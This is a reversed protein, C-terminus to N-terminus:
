PASIVQFCNSEASNNDEVLENVMDTSDIKAIFKYSGDEINVPINLRVIIKRSRGIALRNITKSITTVTVDQTDDSAGCPRICIDVNFSVKGKLLKNGNNAVVVNLKCKDNPAVSGIISNIAGELDIMQPGDSIVLAVSSGCAVSAGAGPNQEMVLGAPVTDSYNFTVTGKIFGAASLVSEAESATLGIVDPVTTSCCPGESVVLDVTSGCSAFGASPSQSIVVGVAVTDSCQYSVNGVSLNEVSDIASIAAAEEMGVLNPVTPQGTSIELDVVSGCPATGVISQSIVSGNAITGSCVYTIAGVSLNEVAEIAAIATAESIGLVDPINVQCPAQQPVFVAFETLHSVEYMITMTAWNIQVNTIGDTKWQQDGVDFYRIEFSEEFENQDMGEPLQFSMMVTFTHNVDISIGEDDFKFDYVASATTDDTGLVADGPDGYREITLTVAQADDGAGAIAFPPVYINTNDQTGMISAGGGTANTINTSSTKILGTGLEFTFINTAPNGPVLPDTEEIQILVLETSTPDLTYDIQFHNLLSNSTMTGLVGDGMIKTIVPQANLDMNSYFDISLVSASGVTSVSSYLSFEPPEPTDVIIEIDSVYQEALLTIRSGDSPYVVVGYIDTDVAMIYEGPTLDEIAFAGGVTDSTKFTEDSENYALVTVGNIPNDSSDKVTGSISGVNSNLVFDQTTTIGDTIGVSVEQAFFGSAVVNVTYTGTNIGPITYIGSINTTAQSGTSEVTVVAGDIDGTDDTVHGTLTGGSTFEINQITTLGAAITVIPLDHVSALNIAYAALRYRGVPLNRIEYTTTWGPFAVADGLIMNQIQDNEDLAYAYIVSWEEPFNDYGAPVTIDGKLTGNDATSMSFDIDTLVDGSSVHFSKWDHLIVYGGWGPLLDQYVYMGMALDDPPLSTQYYGPTEGPEPEFYDGYGDAIEDDDIDTLFFSDINLYDSETYKQSTSLALIGFELFGYDDYDSDEYYPYYVSNASDYAAIGSYNTILGSIVAGQSNSKLVVTGLDLHQSRNLNVNDIITTISGNKEAQFDYTGPAVYDITFQGFADTYIDDDSDAWDGNIDKGELSIEAGLVPFGSEDIVIGTIMGAEYITFTGADITQGPLIDIPGANAEGVMYKVGEQMIERWDNNLYIYNTGSPVTIAFNGNSDTFAYGLEESMYKNWQTEVFVNEIGTGSENEVRGTIIGAPDLFYDPGQEGSITAKYLNGDWKGEYATGSLDAQRVVVPYFNGPSAQLWLEYRGNSDTWTTHWDTGYQTWSVDAILEANPIPTGDATKVYGYILGAVRLEFDMDPTETDDFAWVDYIDAELYRTGSIEQTNIRIHYAREELGTFEYEGASNTSIGDVYNWASEDAIYPDVGEYLQVWINELPSGDSHKVVKGSISGTWGSTFSIKSQSDTDVVYEIGDGNVGQYGHDFTFQIEYSCDPTLNVPGYSSLGLDSLKLHVELGPEDQPEVDINIGNAATGAYSEWQLILNTSVQTQGNTPYTMVPEQMVQTIEGGGPVEYPIATTDIGGGNYEITFVYDGPGYVDLESSTSYEAGYSWGQDDPDWTMPFSAGGPTAFSVSQVTTDTQIFVDFDYHVPNGPTGHDWEKSMEVATVHDSVLAESNVTIALLAMFVVSIKTSNIM